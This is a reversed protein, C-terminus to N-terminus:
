VNGSVLAEGSKHSTKGYIFDFLFQADDPAMDLFSCGLYVLNAEKYRRRIKMKANVSRNPTELAVAVEVGAQLALFVFSNPVAFRLGSASIDIVKGNIVRNKMRGAEFYGREKLSLVLCRGYQYLKEVLAIDFLRNKPVASAAKRWAYIYGVVYEQFILPIWAETLIGEANKTNLTRELTQDLFAAGIGISELYRKFMEETVLLKQREETDAIGTFKSLTSPIFLTKGNESILREETTEPKIKTNFYVLKYGDASENALASIQAVIGNFDKSSVGPLLVSDDITEFVPSKPFPLSYRDELSLLEINLDAPVSVRSNSRDLNKYLVDPVTVTIVRESIAKVEVAFSIILGKYDFMLNLRKNTVLGEVPEKTILEMDEKGVKDVTFSYDHRNFIYLLPIQEGALKSLFYEKEIRKIQTSM